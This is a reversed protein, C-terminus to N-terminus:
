GRADVEVFRYGERGRLQAEYQRELGGKGIRMGAKYEAFEPKALESESIEGTYGVFSAVAPGDPYWRKPTSQIILSPFETRHEELVSVQQFGADALIVAPRNPARNFRRVATEIDDDTFPIVENLRKLTQRLSDASPSLISVTYGPLNEAIVRGGRDYIIGRPAPLPVERLRNEESQMVYEAHRLVQARYFAGCLLVFSAVILTRAGRSRRAIDNPHFSM